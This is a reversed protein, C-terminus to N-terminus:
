DTRDRPAADASRAQEPLRYLDVPAVRSTLRSYGDLLLSRIGLCNDQLDELVSRVRSFPRTAGKDGRRPRMYNPGYRYALLAPVDEPVRVTAGLFPVDRRPRVLRAPVDETPSTITSRLLDGEVVYPYVDIYYRTRRDHIRLLKRAGGGRDTLDYGLARLTGALGMIKPKETVLASLDVDKDGRIIDGERYYGLLTGFDCWYDVGAAEFVRCVDPLARRLASRRHADILPTLALIVAAAGVLAVLALLLISLDLRM